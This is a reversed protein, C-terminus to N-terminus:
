EVVVASLIVYLEMKVVLPLPETIKEVFLEAPNVTWRRVDVLDVNFGLVADGVM